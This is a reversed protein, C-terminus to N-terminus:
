RLIQEFYLTKHEQYLLDLIQMTLKNNAEVNIEQGAIELSNSFIYQLKFSQLCIYKNNNKLVVQFIYNNYVRMYNWEIKYFSKLRDLKERLGCDDVLDKLDKVDDRIDLNELNRWGM